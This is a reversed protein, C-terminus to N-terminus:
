LVSIFLVEPALLSFPVGAAAATGFLFFCTQLCKLAPFQLFPSLHGFEWLRSPRLGLGSLPLGFDRSLSLSLPLLPRDDLCDGRCGDLDLDLDLVLTCAAGATAVDAKAFPDLPLSRDM